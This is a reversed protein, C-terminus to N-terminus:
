HQKWGRRAKRGASHISSFQSSLKRSERHGCNCIHGLNQWALRPSKSLQCLDIFLSYLQQLPMQEELCLNQQGLGLIMPGWHRCAHTATPNRHQCGMTNYPIEKLQANNLSKSIRCAVRYELIFLYLANSQKLQFGSLYLSPGQICSCKSSGTDRSTFVSEIITLQSM